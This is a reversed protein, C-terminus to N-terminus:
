NFVQKITDIVLVVNTIKNGTTPDIVVPKYVSIGNSADRYVFFEIVKCYGTGESSNFSDAFIDNVLVGEGSKLNVRSTYMSHILTYNAENTFGITYTIDITATTDFAMKANAVFVGNATTNRILRSEPIETTLIAGLRIADREPCVYIEPDATKPVLESSQEDWATSTTPADYSVTNIGVSSVTVTGIYIAGYYNRYLATFKEGIIPTRNFLSRDASGTFGYFPRSGVDIVGSFLLTHANSIDSSLKTKLESIDKRLKVETNALGNDVYERTTTVKPKTHIHYTQTITPLLGNDPGYFTTYYVTGANDTGTEVEYTPYVIREIGGDFVQYDTNFNELVYSYGNARTVTGTVLDLTDGPGLELGKDDHTFETFSYVSEIYPEYERASGRCFMLENITATIGESAPYNWGNSYFQVDYVGDKLDVYQVDKNTTFGKVDSGTSSDKLVMVPPNSGGYEVSGYSFYYRGAPFHLNYIQRVRTFTFNRPVDILNRGISQIKQIYVPEMRGYAEVADGEILKIESISRDVIVANATTADKLVIDGVSAYHGGFEDSVVDSITLGTDIMDQTVVFPEGSVFTHNGCSLESYYQDNFYDQMASFTMIYSRGVAAEPFFEGFTTVTTGGSNASLGYSSISIWNEERSEGAVFLNAGFGGTERAIYKSRVEVIEETYKGDANPTELGGGVVLNEEVTLDGEITDGYRSVLGTGAVFSDMQGQIDNEFNTQERTVDSKFSEFKADYTNLQTRVNSEFANYDTALDAVTETISEKFDSIDDTAESIFNSVRVESESMRILLQTIIDSNQEIITETTEMGESIYCNDCLESNWHLVDIGQDDTSKACVLFALNGKAQTVHNSITWTFHILDPNEPDVTKEGVIYSGAVRNSLIYNIYIALTSLDTDDWYRPMDFTVTEINHDYQVGLRKLEDPVTIFRNADIVIHPEEIPTEALAAIEEETLNDLLIDAQSM